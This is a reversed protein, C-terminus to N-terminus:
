YPLTACYPYYLNEAERFGTMGPNISPNGFEVYGRLGDVLWNGAQRLAGRLRVGAEVVADKMGSKMVQPQSPHLRSRRRSLLWTEENTVHGSGVSLLRTLRNKMSNRASQDDFDYSLRRWKGEKRSKMVHKVKRVDFTFYDAIDKVSPSRESCEVTPSELANALYRVNSVVAEAM